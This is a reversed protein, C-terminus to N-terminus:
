QFEMWNARTKHKKQKKWKTQNINLHVMYGAIHENNKNLFVHIKSKKKTRM